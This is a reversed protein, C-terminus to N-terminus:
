NHKTMSCDVQTKGANNHMHTKQDTQEHKFRRTTNENIAFYANGSIQILTVGNWRTHWWLFDDISVSLRSRLLNIRRCLLFKNSRHKGRCLDENIWKYSVMVFRLNDEEYMSDSNRRWLMMLFCRWALNRRMFVSRMIRNLWNKLMNISLM